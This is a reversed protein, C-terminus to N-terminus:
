HTAKIVGDGTTTYYITNNGLFKIKAPAWGTFEPDEEIYSILQANSPVTMIYADYNKFDMSNPSLHPTTIGPPETVVQHHDEGVSVDRIGLYLKRSQGPLQPALTINSVGFVPFIETWTGEGAVIKHEWVGGRNIWGQANAKDSWESVYYTDPDFFAIDTAFHFYKQFVWHGDILFYLGPGKNVSDMFSNWFAGTITTLAFLKGPIIIPKGDAGIVPNNDADLVPKDLTKGVKIVNRNVTKESIPDPDTWFSSDVLSWTEGQDTSQYVGGDYSLAAIYWTEGPLDTKYDKDAIFVDTIIANLIKGNVTPKYLCTSPKSPECTTSNPPAKLTQFYNETYAFTAQTTTSAATELGALGLGNVQGGGVAWLRGPTKNSDTAIRHINGSLGISEKIWSNGWNVSHFLGFDANGLFRHRLDEGPAIFYDRVALVPIGGKPTAKKGTADYKSDPILPVDQLNKAALSSWRVEGDISGTSRFLGTSSTYVTNPDTPSVFVTDPKQCWIWGAESLWSHHDEINDDYVNFYKHDKHMFFIESWTEGGNTTKFIGGDGGSTTGPSGNSIGGEYTVYATQPNSQSIDIYDYSPLVGGKSKVLGNEVRQLSGDVKELTATGVSQWTYGAGSKVLKFFAPATDGGRGYTLYAIFEGNRSIGSLHRAHLPNPLEARINMTELSKSVSNYHCRYVNNETAIFFTMPETNTEDFFVGKTRENFSHLISWTNGSDYTAYIISLETVDDDGFGHFVAIGRSSDKPNFAVYYPGTTFGDIKSWAIGTNDSKYFGFKGGAFIVRKTPDPDRTWAWPKSYGDSGNYMQLGHIQEKDIQTFNDGGDTSRFVVGMDNAVLVIKAYDINTIPVIGTIPDIGTNPSLLVLPMRGGGGPAVQESLAQNFPAMLIGLCLIFIFSSIPCGRVKQMTVQRM